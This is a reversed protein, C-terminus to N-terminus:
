IIGYFNEQLGKGAVLSQANIYTYAEDLTYPQEFALASLWRIILSILFLIIVPHKLSM